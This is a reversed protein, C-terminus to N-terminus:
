PFGMAVHFYLSKEIEEIVERVNTKYVVLDIALHFFLFPFGEQHLPASM